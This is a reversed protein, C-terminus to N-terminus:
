DESFAVMSSGSIRVQQHPQHQGSGWVVEMCCEALPQKCGIITKRLNQAVVENSLGGMGLRGLLMLRLVACAFGPLLWCATLNSSSSISAQVAMQLISCHLSCPQSADALQKWAHRRCCRSAAFPLAASSQFPEDVRMSSGCLLM